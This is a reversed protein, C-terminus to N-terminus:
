VAAYVGRKITRIQGSKTGKYIINAIKKASFGTQHMLSKTGIGDKSATILDLVKGYDTAKTAKKKSIAKRPARKITTKENASITRKPMVAKKAELKGITTAIKDIQKTLKNIERQVRLFEQKITM